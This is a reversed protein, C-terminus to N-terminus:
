RMRLLYRVKTTVSLLSHSGLRLDVIVIKCGAAVDLMQEDFSSTVQTVVASLKSCTSFVPSLSLTLAVEWVDIAFSKASLSMSVIAVKSDDHTFCCAVAACGSNSHYRRLESGTYTDRM